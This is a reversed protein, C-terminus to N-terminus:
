SVIKTIIIKNLNSRFNNRWFYYFDTLLNLILIPIGFVIYFFFKSWNKIKDVKRISRLAHNVKVLIGKLYALPIMIVSGIIFIMFFVNILISYQAFMLLNNLKVSPQFFLAYPIFPLVVVNLPTMTLLISGYHLNFQLEDRANLIKSLYLGKSRHDFMNYTNSLIAIILNLILINFSIVIIMTYINGFYVLWVKDKIENQFITFDYNGISADLVFLCSDLFTSFQSQDLIFNLNGVITFMFVMITYLIFFNTYDSFMKGVIKVLPGISETFQLYEIVKYVLCVINVTMFYELGFTIEKIYIALTKFYEDDQDHDIM